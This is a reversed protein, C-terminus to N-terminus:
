CACLDTRRAAGRHPSTASWSWTIEIIPPRTRAAATAATTTAPTDHVPSVADRAGVVSVAGVVGPGVDGVVVPAGIAVVEAVEVMGVVEVLTGSVPGNGGRTIM